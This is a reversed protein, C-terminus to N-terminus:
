SGGGVKAAVALARDLDWIIDDADELGVSIRVLDPLVGSADATAEFVSSTTQYIPVAQLGTEPDPAGGAHVARTRFGWPRDAM